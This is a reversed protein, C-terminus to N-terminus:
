KEGVHKKNFRWVFLYGIGVSIPIAGVGLGRMAEPEWIGITAMFIMFGIGGALLLVGRRLDVNKRPVPALLERPIDVGKEVMLRLTEHMQRNRRARYALGFAIAAILCAFIISPVLFGLIKGTDYFQKERLLKYRQERSLQSLVEDSPGPMSPEAPEASTTEERNVTEAQGDDPQALAAVPLLGLVAVVLFLRTKGTM